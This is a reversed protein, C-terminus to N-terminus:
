MADKKNIEEWKSKCRLIATKNNYRSKRSSKQEGYKRKGRVM